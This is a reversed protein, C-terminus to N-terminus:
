GDQDQPSLGASIAADEAGPVHYHDAWTVAVLVLLLATDVALVLLLLEHGTSVLPLATLVVVLAGWLWWVASRHSRALATQVLLQVMATITGLLAFLWLDPQVRAYQSGGVFTLTVNPFLLSGLVAFGGISAVIALGLLHLHRHGGRRALVPFAMVTVFTPMFLVGKALILGAAYLGSETPPLTIRAAFVDVQTLAFFALLTHSDHLVERVVGASSGHPQGEVLSLDRAIIVHGLALPVLAGIAVGSMAGLPTPWVALVAGGVMLRGVGSSVSVSAFALWRRRGQLLGLQVGTVTLAAAIVGVTAPTVWSKLDFATAALPSALVCVAGLALAARIGTRLMTRAVRPDGNVAIRRATTAQIGLALVNVVLVVGMLAAVASYRQPGLLRAAVLTYAYAAANMVTMGVAVLGAGQAIARRGRMSM